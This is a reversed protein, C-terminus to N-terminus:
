LVRNVTDMEVGLFCLSQSPQVDKSWNITFGLSQLLSILPDMAIQCQQQIPEIILFDDLYALLTFGRRAMMRCVSHTLRHFIMLSTRAGFPLREDFLFTMNSTGQLMVHWTVKWCFPHTGVSRYAHKLDIQALWFSPKAKCAAVDVITNKYHDLDMYSNASLPLPRSCDMILRLESDGKPVAGIANVIIHPTNSTGFHGKSLGQCLQEEIQEKAGPRLASRNNKTLVPLATAYRLILDFGERVGNLM